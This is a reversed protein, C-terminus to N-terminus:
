ETYAEFIASFGQHNQKFAALIAPDFHEPRTHGDGHTIIDVAKLHDFASKYPRKSRLADYIDCINM